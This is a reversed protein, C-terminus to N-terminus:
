YFAVVKYYVYQTPKVTSHIIFSVPLMYYMEM